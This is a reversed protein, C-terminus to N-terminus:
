RALEAVTQRGSACNTAADAIYGKQRGLKYLGEATSGIRGLDSSIAGKQAPFGAVFVAVKDKELVGPKAPVLVSPLGSENMSDVAGQVQFRDGIEDNVLFAIKQGSKSIAAAGKEDYYQGAVPQAGAICVPAKGAANAPTAPMLPSLSLLAALAFAARSNPASMARERNNNNKNIIAKIIQAIIERFRYTDSNAQYHLNRRLYGIIRKSYLNLIFARNSINLFTAHAAQATPHATSAM